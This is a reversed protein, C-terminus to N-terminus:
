LTDKDFSNLVLRPGGVFTKFPGLRCNKLGLLKKKKSASADRAKLNDTLSYSLSDYKKLNETIKTEVTKATEVILVTFVTFVTLVTSVTLETLETM